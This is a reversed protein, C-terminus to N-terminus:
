LLVQGNKLLPKEKHSFLVKLDSWAFRRAAVVRGGFLSEKSDLATGGLSQYFHEAAVNGVLVWLYFSTVGEKVLRGAAASMLSRGIGHGKLDPRVHLNDVLVAYGKEPLDMVAIFGIIEDDDLAVLVFEKETLSPMKTTWYATREGELDNDLYENSLLGRYATQWSHAHLKAISGADSVIAQRLCIRRTM